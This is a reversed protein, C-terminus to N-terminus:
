AKAGKKIAASLARYAKTKTAGLKELEALAMRAAELLSLSELRAQEAAEEAQRRAETAAQERAAAEKSEREAAERADREIRLQEAKAAEEKARIAAAEREAAERDARTKAEQAEREARAAAEQAALTKAQAEALERQQREIEARQSALEAAEAERKAAADLMEILKAHASEFAGTIAERQEPTMWEELPQAALLTDALETILASPLGIARILCESPLAIALQYKNAQEILKREREQKEREKRTEEAKIQADIPDELSEIESTIRKAESDILQCRRLAPEKIEKRRKDLAVRTERLERRAEIAERMGATTTVAFVASEYKQRLGALALATENYEAIETAESLVASM